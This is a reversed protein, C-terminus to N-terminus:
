VKKNSERQIQIFKMKTSWQLLYARINTPKKNNKEDGLCEPTDTCYSRQRM